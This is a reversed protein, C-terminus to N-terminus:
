RGVRACRDFSGDPNYIPWYMAQRLRPSYVGDYPIGHVIWVQRFAAETAPGFFGREDALDAGYCRILADQLKYVGGGSMGRSFTCTLNGLSTSPLHVVDGDPLSLDTWSTCQSVSAAAHGAPAAQAAGSPPLAGVGTAVCVASAMALLSRHTTSTTM